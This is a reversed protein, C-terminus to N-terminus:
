TQKPCLLTTLASQRGSALIEVVLRVEQVDDLILVWDPSIHLRHIGVQVVREQGQEPRNLGGALMSLGEGGVERTNAKVLLVASSGDRSCSASEIATQEADNGGRGHNAQAEKLVVTTSIPMQTPLDESADWALGLEHASRGFLERLKRRFYPGPSTIGREWRSVNGHTTGLQDAVELQTWRRRLREAVLRQRPPPANQVEALRREHEAERLLTYHHEHALKEYINPVM